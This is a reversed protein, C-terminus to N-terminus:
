PPAAAARLTNGAFPCTAIPAATVKDGRVVHPPRVIRRTSQRM